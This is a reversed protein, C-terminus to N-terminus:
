ALGTRFQQKAPLDAPVEVGQFLIWPPVAVMDMRKPHIALIQFPRVNPTFPKMAVAAITDLGHVAPVIHGIVAGLVDGFFTSPPVEPEQTVPMRFKRRM